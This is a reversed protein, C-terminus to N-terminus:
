QPSFPKLTENVQFTSRTPAVLRSIVEYGDKYIDITRAGSDRKLLVFRIPSVGIRHGDVDVTAGAPHTTILVLSARGAEILAIKQAATLVDSSYGRQGPKVLNAVPDTQTSYRFSCDDHSTRKWASNDRFIVMSPRIIFETSANSQHVPLATNWVLSDDAGPAVQHNSVFMSQNPTSPTGDIAAHFMIGKLPFRTTNHFVIVYSNFGGASVSPTVSEFRIPCVAQALTHTATLGTLALLGALIIWFLFQKASL